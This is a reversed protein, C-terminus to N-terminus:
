SISHLPSHIDEENFEWQNSIQAIGRRVYSVIRIIINVNKNKRYEIWLDLSQGRPLLINYRWCVAQRFDKGFDGELTVSYNGNWRIKGSFGHAIEIDQLAFKEGYPQPYYYGAEQRLFDQVDESPICKAKKCKCLWKTRDTLGTDREYIKDTIFLTYAKIERHLIEIEKELPERDLFCIDYPKEPPKTLCEVHDLRVNSPLQYLKNWNEKGLQLICIEAM